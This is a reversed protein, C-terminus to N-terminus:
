WNLPMSVTFNYNELSYEIKWFLFKNEHSTIRFPALNPFTGRERHRLIAMVKSFNGYAEFTEFMHLFDLIENSLEAM